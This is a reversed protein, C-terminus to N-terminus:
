SPSPYPNRKEALCARRTRQPDVQASHLTHVRRAIEAKRSLDSSGRPGRGLRYIPIGLTFYFVHLPIPSLVPDSGAAFRLIEVDPRCTCGLYPDSVSRPLCVTACILSHRTPNHMYWLYKNNRNERSTRSSKRPSSSTRRRPVACRGGAGRAGARGAARGRPSLVVTRVKKVVDSMSELYFVSWRLVALHLPAGVERM